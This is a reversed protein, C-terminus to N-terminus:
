TLCLNKLVIHGGFFEESTVMTSNAMHHTANSEQLWYDWENEDQLSIFQM